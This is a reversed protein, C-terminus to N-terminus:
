KSSPRRLVVPSIANDIYSAASKRGPNLRGTVVRAGAVVFAVLVIAALLVRRM